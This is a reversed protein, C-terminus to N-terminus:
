RIKQIDVVDSDIIEDVIYESVQYERDESQFRLSYLKNNIRRLIIGKPDEPVEIKEPIHDKLNEPQKVNYLKPSKVISLIFPNIILTKM